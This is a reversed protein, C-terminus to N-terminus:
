RTFPFLHDELGKYNVYRTDVCRSPSVEPRHVQNVKSEIENRSKSNKIRKTGLNLGGDPFVINELAHKHEIYIWPCLALDILIQQCYDTSRIYYIEKM